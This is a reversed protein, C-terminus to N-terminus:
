RTLQRAESGDADITWVEMRGSRDSQFALRKGDAFWTPVEDVYLEDHHTVQRAAGSAVDVIWLHGRHVAHSTTQFALRRGDPSWAPVQAQGADSPLHTLQHAGTGDANMVYVHLTGEGDRGTYAIRRGDPSWRLNWAVGTGDTLPRAASGDLNAVSVAVATWPGRSFLARTGDPSLTAGRGPVSGLLREDGGEPAISVLRSADGASISVVVRRGDASWQPHGEEAATSTLRVVGGGDVGVVYLDDTGDRNSLFAVRRGDPSAAPYGSYVPPVQLAAVDVVPTVSSGDAAMRQIRTEGSQVFLVEKGDPSWRAFSIGPPGVPVTRGDPGLVVLRRESGKEGSSYAIRGDPLFNPFFNHRTGDTVRAERGSELDLTWVQDHDDGKERYFVVRKGDPSVVPNYDAAPDSTLRRPAGNGLDIRYLDLNGDVKASYVLGKGDPTWSPVEDEGVRRTIRRLDSGDTRVTVVEWDGDFLMHAALRDGLPSFAVYLARRLVVRPHSGDRDAVWVAWDSNDYRGTGEYRSFAIQRGDPSWVADQIYLERARQADAAPTEAAL